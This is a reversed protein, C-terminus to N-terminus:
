RLGLSRGAVVPQAGCEPCRDATARLDYGCGPCLRQRLRASRKHWRAAAAGVWVAPLVALAAAALPLPVECTMYPSDAWLTKEHARLAGTADDVDSRLTEAEDRAARGESTRGWLLSRAAAIRHLTRLRDLEWALRTKERSWQEHEWQRQPTNNVGLRASELYIGWRVGAATVCWDGRDASRRSLVLAAVCAVLSVATALNLFPRM